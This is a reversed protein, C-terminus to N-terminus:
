SEADRLYINAPKIDRHIIGADHCAKFAEALEGCIRLVEDEKIPLYKASDIAGGAAYEMIEYWRDIEYSSGSADWIDKRKGHEFVKIVHTNNIGEIRKLIEEKPKRGVHYYKIVAKDSGKSAIYVDAEGSEVPIKDEIHWGEVVAGKELLTITM